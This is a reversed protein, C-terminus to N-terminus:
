EETVIFEVTVVAQGVLSQEGDENFDVQNFAVYVTNTGVPLARDLEINRLATGPQLLGSLYIRDTAEVDAFIDFFLDYENGADNALLCKFNVGDTSFAQYNYTLNIMDQEAQEIKGGGNLVVVNEAYPITGSERQADGRGRSAFFIGAGVGLALVLVLVPIFVKANLKM